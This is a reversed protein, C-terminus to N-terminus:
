KPMGAGLLEEPGDVGAEIRSRVLRLGEHALHEILRVPTDCDPYFVQVLQRIEGAPDFNGSAWTTRTGATEGAQVGARIAYAVCFRGADQDDAFWGTDTVRQLDERGTGNLGIDVKDNM